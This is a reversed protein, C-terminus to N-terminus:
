KKDREHQAANKKEELIKTLDEKTEVAFRKIKQTTTKVFETDRIHIRRINKYSPLKKNVEKIVEGIAKAIEESTLSQKKKKEKIAEVNPFVSATVFLDDEEDEGSVVSEAIFPDNNLYYEVEEPYINKGNKTVIVNKIRGTIRYHGQEDVTGLDGTHFWGEADIVEATQDPANYYGMMVMPGRVCIEGVGSFDPNVIKAEVGPLPVGVSDSLSLRDNNGIVLPSCETLGYGLYVELGFTKFDDVINPAIAAAGTILLRLRGGFTKHIAAFVKDSVNVGIASSAKALMKGFGLVAKGGKKEGAAKLIRKHLKELMLPVTVFITPQVEQMNRALYKLGECFSICAGSYLVFLFGLSSEYTHHLPLISLVQDDTRIKVVGSLAMLDSCINYQSLMVGKAMGTTGSTFILSGLAKGDVAADLFSRDGERLQERGHELLKAYSLVGDAEDEELDFCILLPKAPLQPLIERIRDLRKRDCLVARCDSVTLITVFDEAPLERDIPVVVGTGCTIGLYSTEWQYSNEGSVAIKTGHLGLGLLATGLANVEEQFAQYTVPYYVGDAGKLRYAPLSGFLHASQALLDKFNEINRIPYFIKEEAM